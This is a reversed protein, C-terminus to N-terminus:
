SNEEIYDLASRLVNFDEDTNFYSVSFRVTGSPFTGLFKHAYPACHLGTRVAVCKQSLVQGINDSSYGDFLCSIVGISETNTPKIIRINSYEQLLDILKEKNKTEQLRINEIGIQKIWRVASLLGAIASINPSGAEYMEPITEPMNQNASDFGTGGFLIPAPKHNFSSVFGAVGFPAYLTKHGAFVAFDYIDLGLDIDVLGATQSMDIITIAGSKKAAQCIEKIPAVVGCVNSAHTVIVWHPTSEIFQNEITQLDYQLTQKNVALQIINIKSKQQLHHLVRTVANHEFPSIYINSGDQLPLGQLIMNLAETASNTFVVQKNPCHLLEKLEFRAEKVVSAAKAALYHQGRGVNVGCTRYFYNSDEYVCEPKPFTTAANDFYAIHEM